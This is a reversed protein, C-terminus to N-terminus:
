GQQSRVAFCGVFGPQEFACRLLITRHPGAANGIVWDFDQSNNDVDLTGLEQCNGPSVLTTALGGSTARTPIRLDTGGPARSNCVKLEAKGDGDGDNRVEIGAEPWALLTASAAGASFAARGYQIRLDAQARSYTEDKTYHNSLDPPGPIVGAGLDGAELSGDRVASSTVAGRKIKPSTVANKKLQKSGVSARPITVAYAGGGMALFLALTATVNAYTLRSRLQALM